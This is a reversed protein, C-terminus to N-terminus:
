LRGGRLHRQSVREIARELFHTPQTGPHNVHATKVVNRGLGGASGFKGYIGVRGPTKAGTKRDVGRPFYLFPKGDIGHARSGNNLAMIKTSNAASKAVLKIPFGGGPGPIVEAIGSNALRRTGKHRRTSDRDTFFEEEIIRDIEDKLEGRMTQFMRETKAAAQRELNQAFASNSGMKTEITFKGM